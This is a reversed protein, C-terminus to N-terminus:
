SRVEGPFDLRNELVNLRRSISELRTEKEFISCELQKIKTEKEATASKM